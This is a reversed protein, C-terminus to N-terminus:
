SIDGIPISAALTEKMQQEDTIPEISLIKITDPIGKEDRTIRWKAADAAANLSATEIVLEQVESYTIKFLPM